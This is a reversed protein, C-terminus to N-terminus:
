GARAALIAEIEGARVRGVPDDLRELTGALERLATLFSQRDLYDVILPYEQARQLFDLVTTFQYDFREERLAEIARSAILVVVFLRNDLEAFRASRDRQSALYAAYRRHAELTPLYDLRYLELLRDLARRQGGNLLLARMALRQGDGSEDRYVPNRQVLDALIAVRADEDDPLSRRDLLEELELHVLVTQEPIAFDREQELAERYYRIALPLDGQAAHVRGVGVLAEPYSPDRALADSFHRLAQAYRGEREAEAGLEYLVWAPRRTGSADQAAVTVLGVLLLGALAVGRRSPRRFRVLPSDTM